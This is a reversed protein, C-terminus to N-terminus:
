KFTLRTQRHAIADQVDMPRLVHTIFGDKVEAKSPRWLQKKTRHTPNGLLLPLLMFGLISEIEQFNEDNEFTDIYQPLGWQQLLQPIDEDIDESM